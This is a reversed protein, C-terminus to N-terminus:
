SCATGWGELFALWNENHKQDQAGSAHIHVECDRCQGEELLERMSPGSDGAAPSPPSSCEAPRAWDPWEQEGDLGEESRSM